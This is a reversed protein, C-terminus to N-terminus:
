YLGTGGCLVPIKMRTTIAHFAKIFHKQFDFVSFEEGPEAIDILHYPINTEM